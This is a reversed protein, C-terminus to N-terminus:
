GLVVRRAQEMRTAITGDIVDDGVTVHVGGLVTPDVAINLRVERGKMQSLAAVLRREQDPELPAAVRVQAVVRNRQKAALDCLGDIVVDLRQGHLHDVAYELVQQTAQTSRGRLLDAVIASKVSAAQAPDTLAMQLEPSADIARGFRFLEEETADLTGDQEAITFAAQEALAEIALVLDGQDSWRECVADVVVSVALESVRGGLVQRVLSERMATSQGSDALTTRLAIERDLLDGVAFLEAALGDFGDSGRRADLAESLRALAGRSAGLM